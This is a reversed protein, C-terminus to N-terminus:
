ARAEDSSVQALMAVALDDLIHINQKLYYTQLTQMGQEVFHPTASVDYHLLHQAVEILPLKYGTEVNVCSTAGDSALAISKYDALPFSYVLPTEFSQPNLQPSRTDHVYMLNKGRAAFATQYSESLWYTLYYPANDAFEVNIIGISDDQKEYLVCGDGYMYVTIIEDKIYAILLTSDLVFDPLNMKQAIQYGRNIVYQGFEHYALIDPQQILYQATKALIRAGIHSGVSASCGDCVILHPIPVDAHLTFDQCETHTAGIMYHSDLYLM